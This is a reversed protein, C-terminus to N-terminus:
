REYDNTAKRLMMITEKADDYATHSVEGEIGAREKCKKFGPLSDDKKWDTFYIAPDAIRHRIKFMQKWRPLDEIFKMDFTGFNKGLVNLQQKKSKQTFVFVRHEKGNFDTWARSTIGQEQMLKTDIAGVSQLFYYFNEALNEKLLIKNEFRYKELDEKNLGEQGALIKLIRANMNLAFSSGTLLGGNEVICTFSPLDSIPKLDVTDEIIASFELLQCQDLELGTTETDISLIKM